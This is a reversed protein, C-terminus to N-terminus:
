TEFVEQLFAVLRQARAESDPLGALAEELERTSSVRVENWDFFREHLSQFAREAQEATAGERCIGYVFQELVPRAEPSGNAKKAACGLVQNLLRQKNTATPM